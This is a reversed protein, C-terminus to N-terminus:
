GPLCSYPNVNRSTLNRRHGRDHVTTLASQINVWKYLLEGFYFQGVGARESRPLAAPVKGMAVGDLAERDEWAREAKAADV